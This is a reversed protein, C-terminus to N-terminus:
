IGIKKKSKSKEAPIDFKAYTDYNYIESVTMKGKVDIEEEKGLFKVLELSEEKSLANFEWKNLLRGPRLLAKDIKSKDMNFTAIVQLKMADNLLGNTMNLLNSVAQAGYDEDRNMLCAEADELVLISEKHDMLFTIFDPNALNEMMFSPLYIVKKDECVANILQKIITSKGTGPLGHFLMLGHTKNKLNDVISKYEETFAKGYHLDLYNDDFVNFDDIDNRKLEYGSWGSGITYFAPKDAAKYLNDQFLEILSNLFTEQKEYDFNNIGNNLELIDKNATYITCGSINFIGDPENLNGITENNDTDAELLEAEQKKSEKSVTVTKYFLIIGLKESYYLYDTYFNEIKKTKLVHYNAKSIIPEVNIEKFMNLIVEHLELNLELDYLHINPILFKNNALSQAMTELLFDSNINHRITNM